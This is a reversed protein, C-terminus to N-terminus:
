FSRGDSEGFGCLHHVILQNRPVTPNFEILQKAKATEPSGFM